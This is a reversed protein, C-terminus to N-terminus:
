LYDFLYNSYHRLNNVSSSVAQSITVQSASSSIYMYVAVYQLQNHTQFIAYLM